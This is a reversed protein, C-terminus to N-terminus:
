KINLRTALNSSYKNNATFLKFNVLEPYMKELNEAKLCADKALYIRGRHRVVLQDLENLFSILGSKMPFDLALSFGNLPFSLLGPSTNKKYKKLVSLYPRHDSIKIQEIIENFGILANHEPLIFQYQIMGKKGYLHNWNNFKDLPFFFANFDLTKEKLNYNRKYYLQNYTKMLFRSLVRFPLKPINLKPSKLKFSSSIIQNSENGSFLLYKHQANLLDLWAVQYDDSSNKFLTILEEISAAASTKQQFTSSSIPTLQIKAQLIIGTLGMGGITANFLEANKVPSCWCSENENIQIFLEKIWNGISGNKVHNKGHVDAAIMGGISVFQTGPLTAIMYGLPLTYNLVDRLLFGADVTLVKANADFLLKKTLNLSSVVKKGIAADGYSRGNGRITIAGDIRDGVLYLSANQEKPFNGWGSINKLKGM